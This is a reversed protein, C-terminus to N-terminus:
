QRTGVVRAPVGAVITHPPVDRTVVAGAAVVAGRGIRVGSLVTAGVGLWVDDEVVIPGKSELDQDKMPVGRAMGHDYSYLACFPAIQVDAGIEIPARYAALQCDRQVETDRGIRVSGAQGTQIVTGQNLHVRDALHIPGGDAEAYITVDDGIFTHSRRHLKAVPSVSARPSIFGREGRRALRRQGYYSPVVLMALHGAARGPLSTGSLRVWFTSWVLEFLKAPGHERAAGTLRAVIDVRQGHRDVGILPVM